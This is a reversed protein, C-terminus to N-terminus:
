PPLLFGPSGPQHKWPVQNPLENGFPEILNFKTKRRAEKKQIRSKQKQSRKEPEL